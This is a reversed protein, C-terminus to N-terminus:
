REFTLRMGTGYNLIKGQDFALNGSVITKNIKSRFTFGEFPSWGCKALINNRDVTWLSLPDVIVLDAYYGEDIFGRQEIGFLIAPNHAMKEVILELDFIGEHYLEMMAVLSHQVMPGGSPAKFYTSSKEELSHPAHDTAIVDIIDDKVAQRIAERDFKNKVAPNWKIFTGKKEYDENTFWLHHICAETTIRRDRLAPQNVFLDLEKATSIHLVHLRSNHKKALSVAMSSSLYCAEESRIVPHLKMPVNEGYKQRMEDSNKRITKEDECHTALLLPSEAFIKELTNINDILMNGTSSGMFIKIGCVNRGNTKLVEKLNGNTAGFYFSYNALSKQAAINYKEELLKQTITNPITNPMEMYSTVGGAVAARSDTYIDAKHTLGPERFHVQDDIIGPLILQNSADIVIANRSSIDKDIRDIVKENLLIDAEFIQGRNVIKGNKILIGNM